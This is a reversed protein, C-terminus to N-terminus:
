KEYEFIQFFWKYDEYIFGGLEESLVNKWNSKSKELKSYTKHDGYIGYWKDDEITIQKIDKFNHRFYPVGLYSYLSYMVEFPRDILNELKVFHINESIGQEFADKLRDLALGVPLNNLFLQARKGSTTGKLESCNQMQEFHLPNQRYKTEMSAIIDRLDRVMCIIKPKPFIVNLLEYNIFWGRSKDLVYKKDTLPEFYGEMGHKCFSLFANEMEIQEQAKFEPLTAYTNKATFILELLGSTPTVYFDPNQGIINQILSSGARPLSSNYFIKM